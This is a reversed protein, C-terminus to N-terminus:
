TRKAKNKLTLAQCIDSCFARATTTRGVHEYHYLPRPTCHGCRCCAVAM